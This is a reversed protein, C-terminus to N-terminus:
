PTVEGDDCEETPGEGFRERYRAAYSMFKGCIGCRAPCPGSGHVPCSEDPESALLYCTCHTSSRCSHPMM